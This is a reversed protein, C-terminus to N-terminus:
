AKSQGALDLVAVILDLLARKDEEVKKHTRAHSILDHGIRVAHRRLADVIEDLHDTTM